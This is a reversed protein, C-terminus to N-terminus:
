CCFLFPYYCINAGLTYSYGRVGELVLGNILHYQFHTAVVMEGGANNRKILIPICSFM